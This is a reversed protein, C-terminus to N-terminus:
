AYQSTRGMDSRPACDGDHLSDWVSDVSSEADRDDDDNEEMLIPVSRIKGWALLYCFIKM